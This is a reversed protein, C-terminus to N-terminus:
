CKVAIVIAHTTFNAYIALRELTPSIVPASKISSTNFL